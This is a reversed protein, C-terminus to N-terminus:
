HHHDLARRSSARSTRPMRRMWVPSTRCRTDWDIMTRPRQGGVMSPGDEEDDSLTLVPLHARRRGRRRRRTTRRSTSCAAQLFERTLHANWSFKSHCQLISVVPIGASCVCDTNWSSHSHLHSVSLVSAVKQFKRTGLFEFFKQRSPHSRNQLVTTEM